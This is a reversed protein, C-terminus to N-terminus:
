RAQTSRFRGASPRGHRCRGPVCARCSGRGVVALKRRPAVEIKPRTVLMAVEPEAPRATPHVTTADDFRILPEDVRPRIPVALATVRDAPDFPDLEHLGQLLDTATPRASPDPNLCRAILEDLAALDVDDTPPPVWPALRDRLTPPAGHVLHLM